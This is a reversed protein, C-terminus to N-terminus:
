NEQVMKVWRAAQFLIYPITFMEQIGRSYSLQMWICSESGYEDTPMGM